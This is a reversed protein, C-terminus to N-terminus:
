FRAFDRTQRPNVVVAPLEATLLAAALASEYGGTAELVVLAPKLEVLAQVLEGTGAADNAVSWSRTDPVLAVDLRSKSVDIGVYVAAPTM